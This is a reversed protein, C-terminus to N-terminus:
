PDPPLPHFVHRQMMQLKITQLCFSFFRTLVYYLLSWHCFPSFCISSTGLFLSALIVMVLYKGKVAM